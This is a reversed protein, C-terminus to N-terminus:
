SSVHSRQVKRKLFQGVKYVTMWVERWPYFIHVSVSSGDNKIHSRQADRRSNLHPQAYSLVAIISHKDTGKIQRIVHFPKKAMEDGGFGGTVEDQVPVHKLHIDASIQMGTEGTHPRRRHLRPIVANRNEEFYLPLASCPM